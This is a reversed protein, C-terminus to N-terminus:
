SPSLPRPTPAECWVPQLPNTARSSPVAGGSHQLCSVRVSVVRVQGGVHFWGLWAKFRPLHDIAARDVVQVALIPILGVLSRVRLPMARGDSLRLVDYFFADEANWLGDGGLRGIAEVILM